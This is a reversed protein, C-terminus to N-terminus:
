KADPDLCAIGSGVVKGPVVECIVVLVETM